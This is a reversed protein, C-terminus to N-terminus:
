EFEVGLNGTFRIKQNVKSSNYGFELEVTVIGLDGINCKICFNDIVEEILGVCTIHSSENIDQKFGILIKEDVINVSTVWEVILDAHQIETSDFVEVGSEIYCDYVIGHAWLTLNKDPLDIKYQREYGDYEVKRIIVNEM